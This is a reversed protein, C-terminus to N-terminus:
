SPSNRCSVRRRQKKKFLSRSFSSSAIKSFLVECSYNESSSSLVKAESLLHESRSRLYRRGGRTEESLLSKVQLYVYGFSGVRLLLRWCTRRGRDLSIYLVHARVSMSPVFTSPCAVSLSLSVHVYMCMCLSAFLCLM